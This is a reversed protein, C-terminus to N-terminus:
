SIHIKSEDYNYQRKLWYRAPIKLIQEFQIAMQPTIPSNGNLINSITKVPKNCLLAMEKPSMDLEDLKEQLDIGPHSVTQPHYENIPQNM